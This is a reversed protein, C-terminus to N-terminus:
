LCLLQHIKRWLFSSDLVTLEETVWAMLTGTEGSGVSARSVHLRQPTVKWVIAKCAHAAAGGWSYGWWHTCGWVSYGWRYTCHKVISTKCSKNKRMWFWLICFCSIVLMIISSFMWICWGLFSDLVSSPVLWLCILVLCSWFRCLFMELSYVLWSCVPMEDESLTEM